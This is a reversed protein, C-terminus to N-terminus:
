NLWGQAAFRGLTEAMLEPTESYHGLEDPLGANPYFSVYCRAMGALTRVHDTMFEPGTACNLGVSLMGAHEVSTYFADVGQGALMTGMPEITGSLMLPTQFGLEHFARWVGLIGAKANRTDQVTELVLADVGGQLLGRAQVNYTEVLEDFTVGGTVSIAKTTPGMSGLVLRTAPAEAAVERALRAATENIEEALEALGYEALVLPTAGFTDTGVVDAGAEYYARHMGKVIEPRTLGLHEDGGEYQPE